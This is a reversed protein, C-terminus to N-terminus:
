KLFYTYPKEEVSKESILFIKLKLLRWGFPMQKIKKKFPAEWSKPIAIAYIRARNPHNGQKDMRSLIQGLITYFGNHIMQNKAKGDGKVEILLVKRWSPHYGKVDVGHIGTLKPHNTLNWGKRILYSRLINEIQSEKLM